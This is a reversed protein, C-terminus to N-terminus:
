GIGVRQMQALSRHSCVLIGRLYVILVLLDAMMAVLTKLRAANADTVTLGASASFGVDLGTAM